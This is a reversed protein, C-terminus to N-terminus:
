RYYVGQGTWSFAGGEWPQFVQDAAIDEYSELLGSPWRLVVEDVVENSALGFHLRLPLSPSSYLEQVQTVGGATVWARLGIGDLNSIVGRPVIELWHNGNGDNLWLTDRSGFGNDNVVYIDLFGDGNLDASSCFWSNVAQDLGAELTRDVYVGGENLWLENSPEYGLVANWQAVFVDPDMDNDFDGVTTALKRDNYEDFIVRPPMNLNLSESINVFGGNDSCWVASEVDRHVALIDLDGDLDFDALHLSTTIESSPDFATSAWSFYGDGDNAYIRDELNPTESFFVGIFLDLDGDDEWDFWLHSQGNENFDIGRSQAEETYSLPGQSVYLVPHNQEDLSPFSGVYLDVFGDSNIDGWVPATLDM